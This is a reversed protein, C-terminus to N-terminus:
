YPREEFFSSLHLRPSGEVFPPRKMRRMRFYLAVPLAIVKRGVVESETKKPLHRATYHKVEASKFEYRIKLPKNWFREYYHKNTTDDEEENM